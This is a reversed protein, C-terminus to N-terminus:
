GSGALLFPNASKEEGITTAPGHGSLVMTDRPLTMLKTHIGRLLIEGDGGPLDWRGIGGRFLVDGGILLKDEPSFFCLSGPCHGPVDFVDVKWGSLSQGPGEALEGDPVVPPVQLPFGQRVFFDKESVMPVTEAHCLVPCHHRTKIAAADAVHDWHGHTLVLLDVRERAFAADAGEPADFLINGGPAKVFFCNTAYPGGTFSKFKKM